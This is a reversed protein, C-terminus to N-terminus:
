IKVVREYFESTNGREMRSIIKMSLDQSLPLSSLHNESYLAAIASSYKECLWCDGPTIFTARMREYIREFPETAINGFSINLFECPQVDGKANIYFRDTGGATCGFHERDEDIIMPAIAPYKKFAKLNNYALLKERILALDQNTFTDTGSKLWAGAPKPKIMQILVAGFSKAREMVREFTGDYYDERSLCSNFMVPVKERHCAEIGKELTTWADGSGMFNILHNPDDTHLSFMIGSLNGNRKLIKLREPTIGDGTSNILIESRKDISMVLKRLREFVLFPEGGEINFFGMGKNQLYGATRILLDIGVDKGKDLKQYCHRCNFRCASTVSILVTVAPMKERFAMVKRCAQFFAPTPFAPVYLNIKVGKGTQVYKNDKMKSLFYLLRKVFRIFNKLGLEGEFFVPLFFFLTTIKIRINMFKRGTGIYTKM